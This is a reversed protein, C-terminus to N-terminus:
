KCQGTVEYYFMLIALVRYRVDDCCNDLVKLSHAYYRADSLLYVDDETLDFHKVKRKTFMTGDKPACDFGTKICNKPSEFECGACSDKKNAAVEEVLWTDGIM